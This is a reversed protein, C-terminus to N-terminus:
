APSVSPQAPSTNTPAATVSRTPAPQASCPANAVAQVTAKVSAWAQELEIRKIEEIAGEDHGGIKRVQARALREMLRLDRDTLNLACEAWHDVVAV